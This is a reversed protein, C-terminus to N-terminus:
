QLFNVSKISRHMPSLSFAELVKLWKWVTSSYGTAFVIADFRGKKGDEFM